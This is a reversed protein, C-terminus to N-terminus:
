IKGTNNKAIMIGGWSAFRSLKENRLENSKKLRTEYQAKVPLYEAVFRYRKWCERCERKNVFHYAFCEDGEIQKFHCSIKVSEVKINMQTKDSENM